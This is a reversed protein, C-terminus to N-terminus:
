SAPAGRQLGRHSHNLPRFAFRHFLCRLGTGVPPACKPIELTTPFRPEALRLSHLSLSSPSKLMTKIFFSLLRFHSLLLPFFLLGTQHSHAMSGPSWSNERWSQQQSLGRLGGRLRGMRSILLLIRAGGVPLSQLFSLQQDGRGGVEKIGHGGPGSQM